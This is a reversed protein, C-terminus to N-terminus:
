YLSPQIQLSSLKLNVPCQLVVIETNDLFVSMLRQGLHSISSFNIAARNAVTSHVQCQQKM